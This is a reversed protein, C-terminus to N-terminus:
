FRWVIQGPLDSPLLLSPDPQEGEGEGLNVPEEIRTSIGLSTLYFEFGELKNEKSQELLRSLMWTTSKTFCERTYPERANATLNDLKRIAERIFYYEKRGLALYIALQHESICLKHLLLDTARTHAESLKRVIEEAWSIPYKTNIGTM